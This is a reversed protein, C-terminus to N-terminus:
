FSSIKATSDKKVNSNYSGNKIFEDDAETWHKVGEFNNEKDGQNESFVKVAQHSIELIIALM